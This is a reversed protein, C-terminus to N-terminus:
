RPDSGKPNPTTRPDAHHPAKNIYDILPAEMLIGGQFESNDDSALVINAESVFVDGLRDYADGLDLILDSLRM